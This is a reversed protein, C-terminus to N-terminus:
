GYHAKGKQLAERTLGIDYAGMRRDMSSTSKATVSLAPPLCPLHAPDVSMRTKVASIKMTAVFPVLM